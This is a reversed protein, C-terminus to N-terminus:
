KPDGMETLLGRQFKRTKDGQTYGRSSPRSGLADQLQEAIDMMKERQIRALSQAMRDNSRKELQAFMEAQQKAKDLASQVWQRDAMKATIQKETLKSFEPMVAKIDVATKSWAVKEAATMSFQQGSAVKDSASKLNAGTDAQWIEPTAGKVGRDAARLKGTVPDLDFLMGGSAPKRPISAEAAAQAAEAARGQRMSFDRVRADEARLAGMQGGVPEKSMGIRPVGVDEGVFTTKPPPTDPKGRVFNPVGDVVETPSVYPVLGRQPKNPVSEVVMRDVGYGLEARTAPTKSRMSQMFSEPKNGVQNMLRGLKAKDGGLESPAM